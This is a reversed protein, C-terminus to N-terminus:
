APLLTFLGLSRAALEVPQAMPLEAEAAAPENTDLKRWWARGGPLEPLTFAVPEPQANMVILLIDDLAPDGDATLYAGARGNLLLGVCRAEGDHWEDESTEAGSPSLWTIDKLGHECQEQGHLFRPRRLVPHAKRLEILRKAFALFALGDGDEGLGSWDFWSIENDQCYANNNGQQTRGLEDGGLILPTGQAFLLTALLNRRQRDRLAQIAPDDTPGEAGHNWSYNANHGDRNDEGNAENHKDNYSVLDTLSFGDHSTIKNVSAFPRRGNRDFLDASAALRGALEPRMGPDGKWFRRVTDRFRDNLEAWGAPFNGLQYGGPGIDWPEAILKVRSLVPDQRVADLFGSGPDFGHPERALTAALDFRFGDVHCDQVWYRLSDMVLQLVRPHSINITNGTGTEDIYHRRDDPMLRYYSANDIGRFSLTPGQHNGEGTHNYVVDLIVEIGAEHFRAVMSKFEDLPDGMAYHSAPAFFCISNYGWYNSLGRTQLHRDDVFRHIPLIQVASVGLSVLHELMPPSSLGAYTGRMQAPLAPHRMTAGRVHVEYLVTQDWPTRPPRDMSWTFAPEIVRCKPIGRANDRRDMTLDDRRSGVRYGFHADSWHLNGVLAKAYPDLLLKNPNFRHGNRPDYPGHVRYGYLLGPRAEPM